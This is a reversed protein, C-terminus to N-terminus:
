VTMFEESIIKVIDLEKKDNVKEKTAKKAKNQCESDPKIKRKKGKNKKEESHRKQVHDVLQQLRVFNKPCYECQQPKKISHTLMHRDLVDSRGFVKKCIDCPYQKEKTHIFMHKTLNHAQQFRNGCVSCSFPKEGTHVRMHRELDCPKRFEKKCVECYIVKKAPKKNEQKLYHVVAHEKLQRYVQFGEHCIKCTYPLKGDHRRMHAALAELCSFNMSCLTCIYPKVGAHQEDRHKMLLRRTAFLNMCIKCYFKLKGSHEAEHEQLAAKSSFQGDCQGCTLVERKMSVKLSLQRRKGNNNEERGIEFNILLTTIPVLGISALAAFKSNIQNPTVTTSFVSAKENQCELGDNEDSEKKQTLETEPTFSLLRDSKNLGTLDSLYVSKEISDTLNVRETNTVDPINKVSKCANADITNLFMDADDNDDNRKLKNRLSRRTTKNRQNLKINARSFKKTGTMVRDRNNVEVKDNSVDAVNIVEATNDNIIDEANTKLNVQENEKDSFPSQNKRPRGRRRPSAGLSEPM